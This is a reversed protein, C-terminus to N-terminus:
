KNTIILLHIIINLVMKYLYVSYTSKYIFYFISLFDLKVYYIKDSM